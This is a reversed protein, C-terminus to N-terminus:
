HGHTEGSPRFLDIFLPIVFETSPCASALCPPGTSRWRSRGLDCWPSSAHNM